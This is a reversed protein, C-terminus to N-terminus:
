RRIKRATGNALSRCWRPQRCWRGVTSPLGVEASTSYCRGAIVQDRLTGDAPLPPRFAVVGGLRDIGM